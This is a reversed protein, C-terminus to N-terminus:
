PPGDGPVPATVGPSTWFRRALAAVTEPAVQPVAHGVGPLHELFAGPVLRLAVDAMRAYSPNSHETTAILTPCSIERVREFTGAPHTGNMAAAIRRLMAGELMPSCCLAVEGDPREEFADAVYAELLERRWGTFIGRGDLRDLAAQRSPFTARRRSMNELEAQDPGPSSALDRGPDDPDMLTPEIVVLREFAGPRRAAALLLDTGGASHGLGFAGDLDFADILTEIDDAFDEFDYTDDPKVSGGHGRRDLAVVDFDDVLDLAVANWVSACFGTGHVLLVTSRDPDDGGWRLGTLPGADGPVTFTTRIM